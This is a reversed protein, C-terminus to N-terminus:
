SLTALLLPPWPDTVTVPASENHFLAPSMETPAFPPVPVIEADSPPATCAAWPSVMLVPDDSETSPLLTISAPEAPPAGGPYTVISAPEDKNPAPVTFPETTSLPDIMALPPVNVSIPGSLPAPVRVTPADDVSSRPPPAVSPPIFKSEFPVTFISPSPLLVMVPPEPLSAIVMMPLPPLLTVIPAPVSSTVIFPVPAFVIEAPVLEAPMVIVFKEPDSMPDAGAASAVIVSVPVSPPLAVMPLLEVSSSALPAERVPVM